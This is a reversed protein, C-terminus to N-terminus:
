DEIDLHVLLAQHVQSVRHDMKDMQVEYAMKALEARRALFVQNEPNEMHDELERRELFERIVREELNVRQVLLGKLAQDELYDLRVEPERLALVEQPEKNGQHVKHVWVGLKEKVALVARQVKQARKELFDRAETLVALDQPVGPELYGQSELQDEVERCAWRGKKGLSELLEPFATKERPVGIDQIDPPAQGGMKERNEMGEMIAQYGPFVRQDLNVKRDKRGLGDGAGKGDAIVLRELKEQSDGIGRPVLVELPM